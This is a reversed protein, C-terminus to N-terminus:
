GEIFQVRLWKASSIKLHFHEKDGTIQEAMGDIADIVKSAAIYAPGFATVHLCVDNMTARCRALSALVEPANQITHSRKFRQVMFLVLPRYPNFKRNVSDRAIARSLARPLADTLRWGDTRM